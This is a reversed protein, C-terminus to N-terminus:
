AAIVKLRDVLLYPVRKQGTSDIAAFIPNFYNMWTKGWACEPSQVVQCGASWKGVQYEPGGSHNNIGFWGTEQCIKVGTKDLRNVTFESDQVLATHTNLHMGVRFWSLGCQLQACGHPNMPHMIYYKGPDTSAPWITIEEGICRIIADDYIGMRNREGDPGQQYGRIGLLRVHCKSAEPYDSFQANFGALDM